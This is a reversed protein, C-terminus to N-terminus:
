LREVRHPEDRDPKFGLVVIDWRRKVWEYHESARIKKIRTAVNGYSTSQVALDREDEDWPLAVFDIFGFLDQKVRGTQREVKGVLYGQDELYKVTKQDVTKM